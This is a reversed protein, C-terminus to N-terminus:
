REFHIIKETDIVMGDLSLLLFFIGDSISALTITEQFDGPVKKGLDFSVLRQGSAAYISLKLDGEKKLNYYINLQNEFPNPYLSTIRGPRLDEKLDPPAIVGPTTNDKSKLLLEIWDNRQIIHKKYSEPIIQPHQTVLFSKLGSSDYMEYLVNSLDIMAFISDALTGPNSLISDLSNIAQQYQKNRINSHISLWEASKGLLSDGPNISLSDCYAKLFAYNTDHIAPNLAFLGKLSAQAYKNEPYDSIIQKFESEAQIFNGEDINESAQYYLTKPDDDLKLHGGGPCWIPRWFYAGVPVLRDAPNTDNVWCNDTVYFIPDGKWGRIGTTDQIMEDYEVAKIFPKNGPSIDRIVNFQFEYPFSAYNFICQSITNDAILQTHDIDVALSDGVIALASRHFGAIGYDNNSIQNNEILANSFYSHIGLEAIHSYSTGTFQISNDRISHDGREDWGAYFLEIGRNADYSIENNEILFNTYDEITIVANAQTTTTNNFTNGGSIECTSALSSPNSIDITSNTFENEDNVLLNGGSFDLPSNSFVNSNSLILERGSFEFPSDTFSSQVFSLSNCIGSVKANNFTFHDLEYNNDPNTFRVNIVAGPNATFDMRTQRLDGEVTIFSEGACGTIDTSNGNIDLKASDQILIETSDNLYFNLSTIGNSLTVGPSLTLKRGFLFSGIISQTTDVRGEIGNLTLLDGQFGENIYNQGDRDRIDSAYRFAFNFAEQFQIFGDHNGGLTDDPNFDVSDISSITFLSDHEGIKPGNEYPYKKSYPYYGRLATGWWFSMDEFGLGPDYFSVTDGSVCTQVTSHDNELDDVFDGSHCADIGFIKQSCNIGDVLDALEYDFLSDFNWLRLYSTDQGTRHGHSNAYVFLIDVNTMVQNLYNFVDHISDKTCPGDFDNLVTDNDLNPLLPYPVTGNGSLVFINEDMFGYNRKIGCYIHSLNNWRGKESENWCLFVAYKHPDPEINNSVVQISDYLPINVPYPHPSNVYEWGYWYDQPPISYNITTYNGTEQDLFIYKCSHDWQATPYMDIFFLWSKDYTCHLVYYSSLYFEQGQILDPFVLVNWNHLEENTLNAKVIGIAQDKDIQAATRSQVGILTIMIIVFLYKTKM